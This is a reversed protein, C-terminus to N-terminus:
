HYYWWPFLNIRDFACFVTKVDPYFFLPLLHNPCHMFTIQNIDERVIIAIQFFTMIIHLHLICFKIAQHKICVLNLLFKKYIRWSFRALFISKHLFTSLIYEQAIFYFWYFSIEFDYAILNSVEGWGSIWDVGDWGDMLGIWNLQTYVYFICIYRNCGTEASKRYFYGTESSDVLKLCIWNPLGLIRMIPLKM